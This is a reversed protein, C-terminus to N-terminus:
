GKWASTIAEVDPRVRELPPEALSGLHVFGAVREGPELGLLTKTAGVDACLIM